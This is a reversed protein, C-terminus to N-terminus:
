TPPEPRTRSFSSAKPCTEFHSVFRLPAAPPPPERVSQLRGEPGMVYVNRVRQVPMPKGNPSLHFEIMVGCADCPRALAM